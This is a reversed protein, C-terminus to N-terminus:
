PFNNTMSQVLTKPDEENQHPDPDSMFDFLNWITKRLKKRYYEYRHKKQQFNILKSNM